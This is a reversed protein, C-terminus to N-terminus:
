ISCSGSWSDGGGLRLRIFRTIGDTAVGLAKSRFMIGRGPATQGAITIYPDSITLRSTLTIVGAVDFVITRPGSLKTVGYRFSGYSNDDRLNTVHYVIGGRGGIAYKGYGEAGPFALRRPQFAWVEGKSTTGNKIEDVRWYYRKLPSLGSLNYSSANGSLNVRNASRNALANKDTSWYLVQSNAGNKAPSWRLAISGNDANAHFEQNAPYPSTAQANADAVDFELSNIYFDTNSSYVITASSGSFSVYSKAAQSTSAARSSPAVVAKKSGNVVVTINGMGAVGDPNNHYAQISHNGNSLGSVTITISTGRRPNGDHHIGDNILKDKLINAKYWVTRLDYGNTSNKVTVRVGNVTTSASGNYSLQGVQWSSFGTQTVEDTRRGSQDFDIKQAQVTQGLFLIGLLISARKIRPLQALVTFKNM